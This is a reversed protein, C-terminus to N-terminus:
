SRSSRLARRRRGLGIVALSAATFGLAGGWGPAADVACRSRTCFAGPDFRPGPDAASAVAAPALLGLAVVGALLARAPAPRGRETDRM